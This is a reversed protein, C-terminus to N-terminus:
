CWIKTLGDWGASAIAQGNPAVSVSSVRNMHGELAWSCASVCVCARVIM